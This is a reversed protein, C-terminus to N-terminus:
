PTLKQGIGFLRNEKGIKIPVSRGAFAKGCVRLAPVDLVIGMYGGM